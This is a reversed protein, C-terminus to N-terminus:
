PEEPPFQQMIQIVPSQNVIEKYQLLSSDVTVQNTLVPDGMGAYGMNLGECSRYHQLIALPHPVPTNFSVDDNVWNHIRHHGVAIAQRSRVLMKARLQYSWIDTSRFIAKFVDFGNVYDVQGNWEACFFTNRFIYADSTHDVPARKLEDIRRIFADSSPEDLPDRPVVFEDLDVIYTYTFDAMSSYLCDTLATLAGYDWLVDSHLMREELDWEVLRLTFPLNHAQQLTALFAVIRPAADLLYFSFRSVGLVSSYYALFQGLQNLNDFGGHLARVCVSTLNRRTASPPLSLDAVVASPQPSRGEGSGGATPESPPSVDPSLSSRSPPPSHSNGSHSISGAHSISKIPLRIQSSNTSLIVETAPRGSWPGDPPPLCNIFTGAYKTQLSEDYIVASINAEVPQQIDGFVLQCSIDFARRIYKKPQLDTVSESQLFKKKIKAITMVRVFSAPFRDDWYASLIYMEGSLRAFRTEEYRPAPLENHVVLSVLLLFAYLCVVYLFLQKHKKKFRIMARM